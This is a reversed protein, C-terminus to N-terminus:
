ARINKRNQRAAVLKHRWGVGIGPLAPLDFAVARDLSELMGATVVWAVSVDIM